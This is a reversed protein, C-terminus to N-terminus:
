RTYRTYLVFCLYTHMITYILLTHHTYYHEQICQGPLGALSKVLLKILRCQPSCYECLNSDPLMGLYLMAENFQFNTMEDCMMFVGQFYSQRLM